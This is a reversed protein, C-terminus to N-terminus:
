VHALARKGIGRHFRSHCSSCLVILDADLEEGIREYTRHHVHLSKDANCLQCRNHAREIAAARTEKWHSTQLYENYPMTKPNRNINRDLLARWATLPDEEVIEDTSMKRVFWFDRGYEREFEPTLTLWIHEKGRAAAYAIEAITGYADTRNLFAFIVDASMISMLCKAHVQGAREPFEWPDSAHTGENRPNGHGGFVDIAYPGVYDHGGDVVGNVTPGVVTSIYATPDIALSDRKANPFPLSVMDLNVIGDRWRTGAIKGALYVKM